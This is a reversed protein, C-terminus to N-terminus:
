IRIGIDLPTEKFEFVSPRPPPKVCWIIMDGQLYLTQGALYRHWVHYLEQGIYWRKLFHWCKVFGSLEKRSWSYRDFGSQGSVYQGVFYRSLKKATKYRYKTIFVLKAKHIEKWARSLWKQDIYWKRSTFAFLLHLVGYGESTKVNFYEFVIGRRRLRKRLIQFHVMLLERRSEPSSTLTVFAMRRSKSENYYLFTLVRQYCRKQQRSWGGSKFENKLCYENPERVHTCVSRYYCVRCVREYRKSTKEVSSKSVYSDLSTHSKSPSVGFMEDISDAFSTAKSSLGV